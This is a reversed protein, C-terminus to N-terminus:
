KWKEQILKDMFERMPMDSPEKLSDHVSDNIESMMREHEPNDCVTGILVASGDSLKRGLYFACRCGANPHVKHQCAFIGEPGNEPLPFVLM